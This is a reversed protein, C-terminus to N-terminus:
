GAATSSAGVANPADPADEEKGSKSIEYEDELIDFLIRSTDDGYNNTIFSEAKNLIVSEWDILNQYNKVFRAINAAFDHLDIDSSPSEFLHRYAESLKKGGMKENNIVASKRADEEFEIFVSDLEQDISDGLGYVDEPSIEVDDEEPEDAEDTEDSDTAPSSGGEGGAPAPSSGGDADGFINEADDGGDEDGGTEEDTEEPEKKEPKEDQEFINRYVTNRLSRKKFNIM